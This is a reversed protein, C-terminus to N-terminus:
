RLTTDALVCPAVRMRPRRFQWVAGQRRRECRLERSSLVCCSSVCMAASSDTLWSPQATALVRRPLTCPARFRGWQRLPRGLVCRPEVRAVRGHSRPDRRGRRWAPRLLQARFAVRAELRRERRALRAVARRDELSRMGVGRAQALAARISGRARGPDYAAMAVRALVGGSLVTCGRCLARCSTSRESTSRVGPATPTASRVQTFRPRSWERSPSASWARAGRGAGRLAASCPRPPDVLGTHHHPAPAPCSAPPAPRLREVRERAREPHRLHQRRRERGCCRV